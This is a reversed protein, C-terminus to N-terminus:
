QWRGYLLRALVNLYAPSIYDGQRFPMYDEGLWSGGAMGPQWYRSETSCAPQQPLKFEDSFHGQGTLSFGRNLGANWAGLNDYLLHDFMVNVNNLKAWDLFDTM